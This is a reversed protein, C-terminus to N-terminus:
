TISYIILQDVYNNTLPYEVGNRLNIAKGNNVIYIDDGNIFKFLVGNILNRGFARKYHKLEVKVM